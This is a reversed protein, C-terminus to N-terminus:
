KIRPVLSHFLMMMGKPQHPFPVSLSLAQGPDHLQSTAPGPNSALVPGQFGCRADGRYLAPPVGASERGGGTESFPLSLLLPVAVCSSIHVSMLLM